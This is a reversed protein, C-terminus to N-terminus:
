QMNKPQICSVFFQIQSTLKFIAFCYAGASIVSHLLHYITRLINGLLKNLKIALPNFWVGVHLFQSM